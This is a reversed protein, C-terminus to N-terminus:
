DLVRRGTAFALWIVAGFVNIGAALMFATAYSGTSDVLWGTVVVGVIGPITGATNTLGMLIDAYRPAIDLHNPLFGSWSFALTGLAGCMALLAMMPSHADRAVLLFAASGLLAFSQMAKRVVTVSVGRGVLADAIWAAVNIMAFMSLWPAASFLGASPISLGQAQRFYSPLWSMLMYLGWNSCFHNIILAWIAPTTLLRRWPVVKSERSEVNAILLAREDSSIGPHTLPSDHVSVFWVIAWLFGITGFIYFVAPWGYRAIVWGTVSLAVVTGVPIGSSFISVARAREAAPVWRSFLNYAAPFTAAEGLGMAIRMAILAGFSLSAAAPTLLTCVSWWVVAVGLVVKGGFRNALYGSPVQFLM